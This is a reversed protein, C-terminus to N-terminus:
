RRRTPCARFSLGDTSASCGAEGGRGQGGRGGPGGTEGPRGPPPPGSTGAHVGGVPTDGAQGENVRNRGYRHMRPPTPTGPARGRIERCTM